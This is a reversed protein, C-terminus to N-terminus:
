AGYGYAWVLLGVGLIVRYIVFPTFSLRELLKMLGWISLIAVAFSLVGAIVADTILGGNGEEMLELTVLLGGALITPISLLMSFRAAEKREYGLFRAATMTIGSRSTGPIISLVQAAGIIMVDSWTLHDERKITMNLRDSVYLLLGFLLTTWGIVTVSRLSDVVGYAGAIGGVIIIPVTAGALFLLLQADSTIRGTVLNWAGLLLRLVDRHFYAMVAFLTGVHVAIDIFLGQDETGLVRPLLVLHGSSSIPLFETIGQILALLILYELPM